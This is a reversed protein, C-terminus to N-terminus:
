GGKDWFQAQLSRLYDPDSERNEQPTYEPRRRIPIPERLPPDVVPEAIGQMYDDLPRSPGLFTSPHKIVEISRQRLRCEEAYNKAATIIQEPTYGDKLLTKWKAYAGVKVKKRPYVLWFEEFDPTYDTPSAALPTGKKPKIPSSEDGDVHADACMDKKKKSLSLSPSPTRNTHNESKTIPNEVFQACGRACARLQASDTPCPPFRSKDETRKEKRIHTQWKFWKDSPVAIYAHTEDNYMELLGHKAFLKVADDIVTITVTSVNPFIQSKIRKPSALGRGWDDLYTIIWPFLLTAMPDEQAVDFLREDHAMDSSIYAKRGM